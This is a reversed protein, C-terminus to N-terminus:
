RSRIARQIALVEHYSELFVGEPWESLEGEHNVEIARVFSGGANRDVFYVALDAPDFTGEAVRRRVRLLGESHTEVVVSGRGLRATAMFLDALPAHVADHLHLEPQEVLDLILSGPDRQEHLKQQVVIPLVQHLGEGAQALNIVTGDPTTTTLEFADVLPRVQLRCGDFYERYWEDVRAALDDDSALLDPAGAGEYGLSPRAGRKMVHSIHTRLPGVHSVAGDLSRAARRLTPLTGVPALGDLEPQAAGRYIARQARLTEDLDLELELTADDPDHGAFHVLWSRDGVSDAPQLAVDYGCSRGTIELDLGVSVEKPLRGYVLDIFRSALVADGLGLPLHRSGPAPARDLDRADTTPQAIARLAIRILRLLASKGSSNRGLILTLPRITLGPSSAAVEGSFACYNRARISALRVQHTSPVSV